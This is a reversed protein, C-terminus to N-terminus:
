SLINSCGQVAQGSATECQPWCLLWGIPNPSFACYSYRRATAFDFDNTIFTIHSRESVCIGVLQLETARGSGHRLSLQAEDNHREDLFLSNEKVCTLM